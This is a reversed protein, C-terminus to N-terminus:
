PGTLLAVFPNIDDFNVQGDGNCDGNLINCGPYAAQYAQPDSLALVFPNIDDFDVRGDCNLDGPLAVPYAGTRKNQGRYTLWDRATRRYQTPLTYLNVDLTYDSYSLVALEYHGDNNVDGITAGNMYTFGIPRLPFGPLDQGNADVGFLWGQSSQMMNHDAFIEMRGDGDIDAVTLPGESGGGHSSFYPFGPKINGHTDWAWFCASGGSLYGARGDLIELQGDGELDTVTPPCYTWTGLLQPWGPYLTGDHRFVYCGAADRHAGVVIERYGDRDLDAFVASQYSFNASAIQKPWGPLLAGDRNWVHISNYSAIMIDPAGDRNVDAVGPSMAPVHDLVRPWNGGWETGDWRYIHVYGISGLREGAVIELKGDGDLDVVCPSSSFYKGTIPFGPKFQGLHDIVYLGGGTTLGRVNQVIELWGDGDIDGVAPAYQAMNGTQAPFGPLANGLYDWAYVRGETSAVIIELRNDRNLDALVAGRTPKFNFVTGITVPWGPLQGVGGDTVSSPPTGPSNTVFAAEPLLDAVDTFAIARLDQAFSVPALILLLTVVSPVLLRTVVSPVLLRTVVSPVLLRTVVSPVLLRTVVSPKM